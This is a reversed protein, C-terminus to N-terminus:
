VMLRNGDHVGGRREHVPGVARQLDGPELSRFLFETLQGSDKAVMLGPLLSSGSVITYRTQHHSGTGDPVSPPKNQPSM